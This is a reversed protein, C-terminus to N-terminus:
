ITSLLMDIDDIRYRYEIDHIVQTTDSQTHQIYLLIHDNTITYSVISRIHSTSVSM